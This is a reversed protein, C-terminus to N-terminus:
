FDLSANGVLYGFLRSINENFWIMNTTLDWEWIVDNTAQVAFEFRAESVRLAEEARQRQRQEERERLVRQVSPVLRALRQKLVYDTAGAKLSELAVEEESTGSVIIFPIDIGQARVLALATLGDFQPLQDDALIFDYDNQLRALFEDRAQVREWQCTYGAEELLAVEQEADLASDELILINLYIGTM